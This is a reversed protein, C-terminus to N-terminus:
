QAQKYGTETTENIRFKSSLLSQKVTVIYFHNSGDKGTGSVSDGGMGLANLGSGKIRITFNGPNIIHQIYEGNGLKGIESGNVIVSTVVAGAVFASPRTFYLTTSGSSSSITPITKTGTGACSSLVPILFFLLLFFKVKKKFKM